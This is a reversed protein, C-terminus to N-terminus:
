ANFILGGNIPVAAGTIYSSERSCLFRIPAAVDHVTGYRRVPITALDPKAAAANMETLIIGPIVANCNIGLPGGKRAYHRNLGLIGAKSAIYEPGAVGGGAYAGISSVLVIRGHKRGAFGDWVSEVLVQTGTLNIAITRDWQAAPVVVDGSMMVGACAVVISAGGLDREVNTVASAVQSRDTIDVVYARCSAGSASISESTAQGDLVDFIAVSAGANALAEAVAAGIGRAGGSVIAVEGALDGFRAIDTNLPMTDNM